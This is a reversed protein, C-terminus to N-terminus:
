HLDLLSTSSWGKRKTTCRGSMSVIPHGSLRVQFLSRILLHLPFIQLVDDSAVICVVGQIVFLYRAHKILPLSETDTLNQVNMIFM